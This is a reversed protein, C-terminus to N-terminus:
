CMGVTAFSWCTGCSGQAKAPTVAGKARWDLSSSTAGVKLMIQRSATVLFSEEEKQRQENGALEEYNL